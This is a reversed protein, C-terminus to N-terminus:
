CLSTCLSHIGNLHVNKELKRLFCLAFYIKSIIKFFTWWFLGLFIKSILERRHSELIKLKERFVYAQGRGRWISARVYCHLLSMNILARSVKSYECKNRNSSMGTAKGYRTTSTERVWREQEIVFFRIVYNDRECWVSIYKVIHFKFKSIYAFKLYSIHM